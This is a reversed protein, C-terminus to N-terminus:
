KYRIDNLYILIIKDNRYEKYKHWLSNYLLLNVLIGSDM